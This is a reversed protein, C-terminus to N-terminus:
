HSIHHTTRYIEEEFFHTNVPTDGDSTSQVDEPQQQGLGQRVQKISQQLKSLTRNWKSNHEGNWVGEFKPRAHALGVQYSNQTYTHIQVYLAM